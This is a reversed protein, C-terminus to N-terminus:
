TDADLDRRVLACWTPLKLIVQDHGLDDRLEHVSCMAQWESRDLRWILVPKTGAKVSQTVAQQWWEKLRPARARKCEVSWGPIGVLDAHGAEASQATWNRRVDLRLEEKLIHALELEGAKGKTRSNTM